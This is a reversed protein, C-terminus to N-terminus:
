LISLWKRRACLSTPSNLDSQFLLPVGFMTQGYNRQRARDQLNCSLLMSKGVAFIQQPVIRNGWSIM